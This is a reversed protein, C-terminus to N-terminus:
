VQRPSAKNPLFIELPPQCQIQVQIWISGAVYVYTTNYLIKTRFIWPFCFSRMHVYQKYIVVIVDFIEIKEIDLNWMRVTYGHCDFKVQIWIPIWALGQCLSWVGPDGAPGAGKAGERQGKWERLLLNSRVALVSHCMPGFIPLTGSSPMVLVLHNRYLWM